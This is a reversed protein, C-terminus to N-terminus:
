SRGRARASARRNPSDPDATSVIVGSPSGRRVRSRYQSYARVLDGGDGEDAHRLFQQTSRMNAAALSRAVLLANLALGTVRRTGQSGIAQQNVDKIHGNKGENVARHLGNVEIWEPGNLPHEQEVGLGITYPIRITRQAGARPLPVDDALDPVRVQDTGVRLSSPRRSCALPCTRRAAPCEYRHSVPRGADDLVADGSIRQAQWLKRQELLRQYAPLDINGAAFEKSADVLFDPMNACYWAGEAYELGEYSVGRRGQLRDRLRFVPMLNLQRLPGHFVDKSLLPYLTPPAQIRTM